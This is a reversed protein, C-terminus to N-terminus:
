GVISKLEPSLKNLREACNHRFLAEQESSLYEKWGGVRGERIFTGTKVNLEIMKWTLQDLKNEHQKMYDFSSREIICRFKEPSVEHGCFDIIKRVVGEPNTKLEEYTLFLLNLNRRNEWWQSVHDFWSGYNYKGKLFLEFFEGFDKTFNMHTRSYHFYSVAVDKGNRAVYIYKCAGKPISKYDLHSKIIRPSSLDEISQLQFIRDEFHPSWENLHALDMEGNTFIQYLIMQVWTTGSRPYTVVFIDDPRPTYSRCVVGMEYAFLHRAAAMTTRALFDLSKIASEAIMSRNRTKAM